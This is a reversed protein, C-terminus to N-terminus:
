KCFNFHAISASFDKGDFSINASGDVRYFLYHKYDKDEFIIALRIEFDDFTVKSSHEFDDDDNETKPNILPVPDKAIEIKTLVGNIHGEKLNEIEVILKNILQVKLKEARTM